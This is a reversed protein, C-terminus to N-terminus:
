RYKTSYWSFYDTTLAKRFHLKKLTTCKKPKRFSIIQESKQLSYASSRAIVLSTTKPQFSRCVRYTWLLVLPRSPPFPWFGIHVIYAQMYNSHAGAQIHFRCRHMCFQKQGCYNPRYESKVRWSLVNNKQSMLNIKAPNWSQKHVIFFRERRHM